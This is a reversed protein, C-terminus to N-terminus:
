PMAIQMGVQLYPWYGDRRGGASTHGYNKLHIGDVEGYKETDDPQLEVSISRNLLKRRGVEGFIRTRGSNLLLMGIGSRAYNLEWKAPRQYRVPEGDCEMSSCGFEGGNNASYLSKRFNVLRTGSGKFYSLGSAVYIHRLFFFRVSVSLPVISYMSQNGGYLAEAQIREHQYGVGLDAGTYSYSSGANAVLYPGQVQLWQAPTKSETEEIIDILDSNKETEGVETTALGNSSPIVILFLMFSWITM